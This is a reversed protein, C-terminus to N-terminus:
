IDEYGYEKWRALIKRQTSESWAHQFDAIGTHEARYEPSWDHPFTADMVWVNAEKTRRQEPTLWPFLLNAAANKVVEYNEARMRSSIAWWVDEINTVDVDEDVFVIGVALMRPGAQLASVINRQVGPGPKLSVVASGPVYYYVSKVGVIGHEDLRNKAAAATMLYAVSAYDDYPKGMNALTHIPNKRHTICKVRALPLKGRHASHGTYEGFPGEDAREGPLVEAEIVMEANAPVELDNTECPTVGIGSGRLAGAIELENVGHAIPAMAAMHAQPDAGIVLTVPMPQGREEYKKLMAGGHQRSQSFLVTFHQEDKLMCRYTATNVWGTDPDRTLILCWTGVYRGGDMEKIWPIPFQLLNIDKGRLIVEKCPAESQRVRVPKLPYKMRERVIEILDLTPTDKDLGLALAARGHLQPKTPGMLVSAITQGPYGKVNEFLPAPGRRECVLRSMAGAEFKWDVETRVRRLEGARELVDIFERTDAPCGFKIAAEPLTSTLAM